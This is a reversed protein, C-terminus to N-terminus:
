SDDPQPQATGNHYEHMLDQISAFGEFRIWPAKPRTRMFSVPPHNMKDGRYVDFAKQVTVIDPLDGTYFTWSEGAHFREAYEHLKEPSDYEPDISISVMQVEDTEDGLAEQLQSFSASLVPCITTCTTFIFNLMVPKDGDALIEQLPMSKGDQDKLVVDPIVYHHESRVFSKQQLMHKHHAHADHQHATHDHHMDHGAHDQESAGTVSWFGLSVAVTVIAIRLQFSRKNFSM